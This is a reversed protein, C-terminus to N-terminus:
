RVGEPRRSRAIQIRLCALRSIGGEAGIKSSSGSGRPPYVAAPDGEVVAHDGDVVAHRWGSLMTARWLLM